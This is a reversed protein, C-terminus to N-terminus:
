LVRTHCTMFCDGQEAARDGPWSPVLIYTIKPFLEEVAAVYAKPAVRRATFNTDHGNTPPYTTLEAHKNM